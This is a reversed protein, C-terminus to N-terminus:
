DLLVRQGDRIMSVGATVVRDGDVIGDFVEVGFDTLEGISVMRKTVIAQESDAEPEAIYVYTADGDHGIAALPILHADGVRTSAFRFTVDAALGSRLRPENDDVNVTVPFTPAGSSSSIGIEKVTGSFTLDSISDFGIDVKTDPSIASILSDPIALEIELGSGCNIRAIETGPSVNENLDVDVSAVTCDRDATLRTYSRNLRALELSKQSARVQATASEATARASDLDNRSANANEYLGKTREYNASANRQNAQSQVLNAQAQQVELEFSSADLRAVLAGPALRDGVDIPLEVLTGSVKFSLRSIQTSRSTGSFTRTRAGDNEVVTIYRVPRLPPESTEVSQECAVLIAAAVFIGSLGYKKPNM